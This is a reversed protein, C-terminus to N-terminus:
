FGMAVSREKQQNVIFSFNVTSHLVYLQSKIREKNSGRQNFTKSLKGWWKGAITFM